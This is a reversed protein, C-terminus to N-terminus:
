SIFYKKKTTKTIKEPYKKKIYMKMFQISLFYFFNFNHINCSIDFICMSVNFFPQLIQKELFIMAADIFFDKNELLILLIQLIYKKYIYFKITLFVFLTLNNRVYHAIFM